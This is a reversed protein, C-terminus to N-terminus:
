YQAVQTYTTSGPPGQEIIISETNTNRARHAFNISLTLGSTGTLTQYLVDVGNANVEAFQSGEYAPVGGFGDSWIEITNASSTTEWGSVLTEDITDFSLTPIVPLEFDGNEGLSPCEHIDLVGDNDDDLDCVNPIEDSDSDTYTSDYFSVTAVASNEVCVKDPHTIAVYYMYGDGFETDGYEVTLGYTDAGNSTTPTIASYTSGSDSSYYWQYTLNSTEDISTTITGSTYTLALAALYETSLFAQGTPCTIIDSIAVDETIEIGSYTNDLGTYTYLAGVVSGDANVTSSAYTLPDGTGYQEGDDSDTGEAAYAEDADSCGDNDSDTDYINIVSDNDEDCHLIPTIAFGEHNISAANETFYTITFPYTVSSMDLVIQWETALLNLSNDVTFTSGSTIYQGTIYEDIENNPDYITGELSTDSWSVTVQDINSITTTSTIADKASTGINIAELVGYTPENIQVTVTANATNQLYEVQIGSINADDYVTLTHDTNEITYDVHAGVAETLTTVTRTDINGFYGTITNTGDGSSVYSYTSCEDTDYIGDNDDDVDCEDPIGDADNDDTYLYLTGVSSIEACALDSHTVEIYFKNAHVFETDGNTLTLTNTDAGNLTTATIASYTVGADDSYYWQYSLNATEDTSTLIDGTDYSDASIASYDVTFSVDASTSCTYMDVITTEETIEIGKYANLQNTYNYLAGDVTGSNSVGYTSFLLPDGTGYQEGDDGDIGELNYAEDSDSCGDSDSDTDFQNAIGDDDTDCNLNVTLSMGETGPNTSSTTSAYDLTFPWTTNTDTEIEIYWESYTFTNEILVLSDGSTILDGNSFNNIEGKPDYLTGQITTDSWSVVITKSHNIAVNEYGDGSNGIKISELISHTPEAISVSVSSTTSTNQNWLLQYGETLDTFTNTLPHTPNEITIDVSSDISLLNDYTQAIITNTSAGSVISNIIECEDIDYIGDNDDDEDCLDSIEDADNDGDDFLINVVYSGVACEGSEVYQYEIYPDVTPNYM